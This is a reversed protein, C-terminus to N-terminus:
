FNLMYLTLDIDDRSIGQSSVLQIAMGYPSMYSVYDCELIPKHEENRNVKLLQFEKLCYPM